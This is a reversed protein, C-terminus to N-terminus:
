AAGFDEADAPDQGQWKKRPNATARKREQEFLERAAKLRNDKSLKAKVYIAVERRDTKGGVQCRGSKNAPNRQNVYGAGEFDAPIANRTHTDHWPLEGDADAAQVQGVTVADPDGITELIRTLVNKNPDAYANVIEHWAATKPPPATPSFDDLPVTMLYHAVADYGGTAYWAYLPAFYDRDLTELDPKGWDEWTRNSWAIYHRADDDPLFLGRAKHNTTIIFGVLDIVPHARIYKDAVPLVGTAIGGLWPKM